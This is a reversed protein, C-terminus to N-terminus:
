YLAPRMMMEYFILM